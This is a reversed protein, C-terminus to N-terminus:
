QIRSCLRPCSCRIQGLWWSRTEQGLSPLLCRAVTSSQHCMPQAQYSPPNRRSLCPIWILNLFFSLYGSCPFITSGVRQLTNLDKAPNWKYDRCSNASTFDKATQLHKWVYEWMIRIIKYKHNVLHERVIRLLLKILWFWEWIVSSFITLSFFLSSTDGLNWLKSPTVESKFDLSEQESGLRHWKWQLAM